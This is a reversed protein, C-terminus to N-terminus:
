RNLLEKNEQEDPTTHEKKFVAFVTLFMVSIDYLMSFKLIYELNYRMKEPLIETVYTLDTDKSQLLLREEDKYKISALSTVGAPLLLTAYMEDSYKDVYKQVEPRTGVFSMDGKLINLLQLLEDLRYKRLVAGIRTIRPDNNVTVQSGKESGTFMTRFKYISFKRGYTTVREQKFVVPGASDTKILISIVIILPVCLMLLIFSIVIDFVRKIILSSKKKALANYYELVKDNIFEQPLDEFKKLIM